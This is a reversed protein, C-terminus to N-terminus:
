TRGGAFNHFTCDRMSSIYSSINRVQLSHAGLSLSSFRAPIRADAFSGARFSPTLIVAVPPCTRGGANGARANGQGRERSESVPPQAGAGDEPREHPIRGEHHAATASWTNEGVGDEKELAGKIAEAVDRVRVIKGIGAELAAEM